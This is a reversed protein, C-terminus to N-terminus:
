KRSFLLRLGFFLLAAGFARELWTSLRSQRFTRAGRQALYAYSSLVLADVVITTIVLLSLQLVASRNPDIFQPLLASVFLLAKPNSLQILLGQFFLNRHDPTSTTLSPTAERSRRFTRVIMRVGLYLLNCAGVVRLVTFATTATALLTGLGLAVCVFFILNGFQIGSIGTLSAKFGYRTSQVMSCMVAPGPTLAVLSWTVLYLLLTQSSM